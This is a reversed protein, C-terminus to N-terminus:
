FQYIEAVHLGENILKLIKNKHKYMDSNLVNGQGGIAINYGNERSNHKLIEKTELEQSENYSLKNHLIEQVFNNTGYKRMANYLKTKKGSKTKAVHRAFRSEASLGTRGIYVMGNIINTIKYVLYKERELM